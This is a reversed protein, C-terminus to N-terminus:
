LSSPVPLLRVLRFLPMKPNKRPSTSDFATTGIGAGQCLNSMWLPGNFNGFYKSLSEQRLRQTPYGFASVLDALTSDGVLNLGKWVRTGHSRREALEEAFPRLDNRSHDERKNGYFPLRVRVQNGDLVEAIGVVEPERILIVTDNVQLRM